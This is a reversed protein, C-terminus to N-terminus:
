VRDELLILTLDANEEINAALVNRIMANTGLLSM